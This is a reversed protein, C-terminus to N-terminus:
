KQGKKLTRLEKKLQHKSFDKYKDHLGKNDNKNKVTGYMEAFCNYIVNNMREVTVTLNYENIDGTHLESRFFM